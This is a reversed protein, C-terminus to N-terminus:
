DRIGFWRLRRSAAWEKKSTALDESAETYWAVPSPGSLFNADFRAVKPGGFEIYCTAV